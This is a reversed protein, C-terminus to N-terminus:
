SVFYVIPDEFSVDRVKPNIAQWEGQNGGKDTARFYILEDRHQIYSLSLLQEPGTNIVRGNSCHTTPTFSSLAVPDGLCYEIYSCGFQAIPLLPTDDNCVLKIEREPAWQETSARYVEWNTSSDIRSYVDVFPAEKDITFTIVDGPNKEIIETPSFYCAAHVIVNASTERLPIFADPLQKSFEYTHTTRASPLSATSGQTYTDFFYKSQDYTVSEVDFKCIGPNVTNMQLTVDTIDAFIEGRPRLNIIAPNAELEITRDVILDNGYDDYCRIKYVYYGDDVNFYTAKFESGARAVGLGLKQNTISNYLDATCFTKQDLEFYLTIDNRFIDQQIEKSTSEWSFDILKPGTVDIYISAMQVEELNHSPDKSYYLLTYEQSNPKITKFAASDPDAFDEQTFVPYVPCQAAQCASAILPDTECGPCNLPQYCNILACQLPVVAMYTQLRSSSWTDDTPTFLLDALQNKGYVPLYTRAITSYYEDEQVPDRLFLTTQPPTSDSVCDLYEKTTPKTFGDDYYCDDPNKGSADTLYKKQDTSLYNDANKYCGSVGTTTEYWACVGLGLIDSSTSSRANSGAIRNGQADYLVQVQANGSQGVCQEQTDYYFCGITEQPLCSPLFWERNTNFELSYAEDKKLYNYQDVTDHQITTKYFCDGYLGCMTQDCYGIASDTDCRLCDQNQTEKPRCVGIGTEANYSKWECGNTASSGSVTTFAFCADQECASQTKYDYCTSIEQCSDYRTYYADPSSDVFCMGIYNDGPKPVNQPTEPNFLFDQCAHLEEDIIVDLPFSSYVDFPGNCTQCEQQTVCAAGKKTPDFPANPDYPTHICTETANCTEVGITLRNNTRGQNNLACGSPQYQNAVLACTLGPKHPAQCYADGSLFCALPDQATGAFACVEENTDARISCVNYCYSTDPKLYNKLVVEQTQQEVFYSTKTSDACTNSDKDEECIHVRYGLIDSFCSTLRDINWKVTVDSSGETYYVGTTTTLLEYAELVDRQTTRQTLTLEDFFSPSIDECTLSCLPNGECSGCVGCQSSDTCSTCEEQCQTYDYGCDSSCGLVGGILNVASCTPQSDNVTGDFQRYLTVKGGPDCQENGTVEGDGCISTGRSAPCDYYQAEDGTTSETLVTIPKGTLVGCSNLDTVTRTKVFEGGYNICEGWGNDKNKNKIQWQPTCVEGKQQCTLTFDIVTDTSLVHQKQEQQCEFAYNKGSVMVTFDLPATATFTNAGNKVGPISGLDYFGQEDTTDSIYTVAEQVIIGPLPNGATDKITGTVRHLDDLTSTCMNNQPAAYTYSGGQVTECYVRYIATEPVGANSAGFDIVRDFADYCCGQQTVNSLYNGNADTCEQVFVSGSYPACASATQTGQLPIIGSSGSASDHPLLCCSAALVSSFSFLLFIVSVLLLKKM